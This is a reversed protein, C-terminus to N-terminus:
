KARWSNLRQWGEALRCWHSGKIRLEPDYYYTNYNICTVIDGPVLLDPRADSGLLEGGQLDERKGSFVGGAERPYAEHIEVM